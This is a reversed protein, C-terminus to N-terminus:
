PDEKAPLQSFPDLAQLDFGAPEAPEAYHLVGAQKAQEQLESRTLAPGARTRALAGPEQSGAPFGNDVGAHPEPPPEATGPVGTGRFRHVLALVDQKRGGVNRHVENASAGPHDALYATVREDVTEANLALFDHVRWRGTDFLHLLGVRVLKDLAKDLKLEALVPLTVVDTHHRTCTLLLRTWRWREVETLALLKPNTDYGDLLKVYSM